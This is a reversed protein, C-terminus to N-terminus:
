SHETDSTYVSLIFSASSILLTAYISWQLFFGPKSTSAVAVANAFHLVLAVWGVIWLALRQGRDQAYIWLFLTVLVAMLVTEVIHVFLSSM